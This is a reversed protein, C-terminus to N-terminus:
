QIASGSTSFRLHRAWTTEEMKGLGHTSPAALFDIIATQDVATLAKM